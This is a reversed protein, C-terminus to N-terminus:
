VNLRRLEDIRNLSLTLLKKDNVPIYKIMRIWHTLELIEIVKKFEGFYNYLAILLDKNNFRYCSQILKSIDLLWSSYLNEYYNPDILYIKDNKLINDLALDGHSFSKEKNMIYMIEQLKSNIWIVFENDFIKNYLHNQLHEIYTDFGNVETKIMRLTNIINIIDDFKVNNESEIFEMEITNGIVSYIVPVNFFFKARNFWKITSNTNLASKFVRGDRKELLQHNLGGKMIQIEIQEFDEPKIGKDDIYYAALPKEFSLKSYKVSHKFLWEEIIQRYKSDAEIRSNCSISGRATLLIVAWGHEYLGNLKEILKLNPKANKWDRNTTFSLTNDIDCVITREYNM